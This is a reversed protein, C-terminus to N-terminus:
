KTWEYEMTEPNYLGEAVYVFDYRRGCDPCRYKISYTEGAGSTGIKGDDSDLWAEKSLCEEKSHVEDPDDPFENDTASM